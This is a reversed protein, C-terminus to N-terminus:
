FCFAASTDLEVGDRGDVEYGTTVTGDTFYTSAQVIPTLFAFAGDAM